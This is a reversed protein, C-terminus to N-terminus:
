RLAPAIRQAWLAYGTANLHLRDELFLEGRPQGDAGLMPTFVDVFRANPDAAVADRLGANTERMAEALAWRSPSPKVSVVVLRMTPLRARLLSRLAEFDALVQAPAKGEQLDNDGAYIVVTRPALPLVIRPAAAVVEAMTSGGFARNVLDPAGLDTAADPWMRLSSSGVLVVGGPAPANARDVAEFAAIEAEFRAPATPPPASATAASSPAASHRLSCAGLALALALLAFWGTGRAM